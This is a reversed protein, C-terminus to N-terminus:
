IIQAEDVAWGVNVDLHRILLSDFSMELTLYFNPM